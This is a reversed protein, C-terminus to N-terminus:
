FTSLVPFIVKSYTCTKQTTLCVSQFVQKFHSQFHVDLKCAHFTNRTSSSRKYPVFPLLFKNRRFAIFAFYAMSVRDGRALVIAVRVGLLKSWVTCGTNNVSMLRCSRYFTLGSFYRSRQANARCYVFIHLNMVGDVERQYLVYSVVTCTM